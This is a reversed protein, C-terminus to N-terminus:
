INAGALKNDSLSLVYDQIASTEVLTYAGKKIYPM